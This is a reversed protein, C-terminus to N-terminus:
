RAKGSSATKAGSLRRHDAYVARESKIPPGSGKCIEGGADELLRILIARFSAAVMVNQASTTVLMCLPNLGVQLLIRDSEAKGGKSMEVDGAEGKAEKAKRRPQVERASCHTFLQTLAKDDFGEDHIFQQVLEQLFKGWHEDAREKVAKLMSECLSVAVHLFPPGLDHGAGAKKVEQHYDKGAQVPPKGWPTSIPLLGTIFLSRALERTEQKTQLALKQLNGTM